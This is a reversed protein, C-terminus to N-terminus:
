QADGFSQTFSIASSAQSYANLENEADLATNLFDRLEEADKVVLRATLTLVVETPVM